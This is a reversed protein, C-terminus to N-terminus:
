DNNTEAQFGSRRDLGDKQRELSLRYATRSAYLASPYRAMLQILRDRPQSRQQQAVVERLEAIEKAYKRQRKRDAAIWEDLKAEAQIKADVLDDRTMNELMGQYNKRQNSLSFILPGLQAAAEDSEIAHERLSRILETFLDVGDPYRILAAHKMEAATRYRSTSAPFGAILVPDGPDLDDIGVRYWQSPTYAVNAEDYAATSGDPAVYARFLAMDGAHRPWMWNDTEGGFFVVSDPPAYVLRLDQIERYRVLEWRMGGYQEVVECRTNGDAECTSAIYTRIRQLEVHRKADTKVGKLNDQVQPTVNKM